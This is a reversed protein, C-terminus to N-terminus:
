RVIEERGSPACGLDALEGLATACRAANTATVFSAYVVGRQRVHHGKADVSIDIDERPRKLGEAILRRTLPSHPGNM